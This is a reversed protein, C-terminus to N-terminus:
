DLGMLMDLLPIDVDSCDMNRDLAKGNRTVVFLGKTTGPSVEVIDGRAGEFALAGEILHGDGSDVILPRTTDIDLYAMLNTNPVKTYYRGNHIEIVDNGDENEYIEAELRRITHKVGETEFNLILEKITIVDPNQRDPIGPGGAGPKGYTQTLDELIVSIIGDPTKATVKGATEASRKYVVPGDDGPTGKEYDTFRGDIKIEVEDGSSEDSFCFRFDDFDYTTKSHGEKLGDAEGHRRTIRLEGGCNGPVVEDSSTLQAARMQSALRDDSAVKQVLSLPASAMSADVLRCGTVSDEVWELTSEVNEESLPARVARDSDSSSDCGVLGAAAAFFLILLCGSFTYIPRMTM